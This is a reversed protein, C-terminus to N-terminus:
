RVEIKLLIFIFVLLYYGHCMKSSRPRMKFSAPDPFAPGRLDCWWKRCSKLIGTSIWLGFIHLGTLFKWLVCNSILIKKLVGASNLGTAFIFVFVTLFFSWVATMGFSFGNFRVAGYLGSLGARCKLDRVRKLCVRM